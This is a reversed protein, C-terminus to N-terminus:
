RDPSTTAHRPLAEVIVRSVVVILVIFVIAPSRGQVFAIWGLPYTSFCTAAYTVRQAFRGKSSVPGRLRPIMMLWVYAPLVTGYLLLFGRYGAEGGTLEGILPSAPLSDIRTALGLMIALGGMAVLLATNAKANEISERVHVTITFGAQLSLHVALVVLWYGPLEAEPDGQIMPLLQAGYCVSFLIMSFFVFGFGFVFAAVGTGPSTSYRARHFTLDLYPCLAFGFISCPLFLLLDTMGLRTAEGGPEVFKALSWAGDMRVAYSFAGWSLLAVGAAVFLMASRKNRMGIAVCLGVAVVVMPVAGLGFLRAFLWAIVFLHYAVTIVTFWHCAQGHERVIKASREPKSLVAGMAAAGVVNPVAFVVWGWLGYDRLLLAPFIMGIVWTWSCGLFAGWFLAACPGRTLPTDPTPISPYPDNSM